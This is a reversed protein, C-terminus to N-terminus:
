PAFATASPAQILEDPRLGLATTLEELEAYRVLNAAKPPTEPRFGPDELRRVLTKLIPLDLAFVGHPSGLAEFHESLGALRAARAEDDSPLEIALRWLEVEVALARAQAFDPRDQLLGDLWEAAEQLGVSRASDKKSARAKEVELQAARLKLLSSDPDTALAKRLLDEVRSLSSRAESEQHNRSQARRLRDAFLQTEVLNSILTEQHDPSLSSAKTLAARSAEISPIPNEGLLLDAQARSLFLSGENVWAATFDPNIDRSRDLAAKSAEFLSLDPNGKALGLRFQAELVAGKLNLAQNLDPNIELSRDCIKLAKDLLSSTEKGQQELFSARNFLLNGLNTLIVGHDPSRDLAEEFSQVASAFAPDPDGGRALREEALLAMATGRNVHAVVLGPDERVATELHKAALELDDRPDEGKARSLFFARTLYASGLLTLTEPNGSTIQLAQQALTLGKELEELRDDLPLSPDQVAFVHLRALQLRSHNLGPDLEMAQQCHRRGDALDQPARQLRAPASRTVHADCLADAIQTDSPALLAAEDLAAIAKDAADIADQWRSDGVSKDAIQRWAEGQLRLGDPLWPAEDAAEKALELGHEYREDLLAIMSAVLAPSAVESTEEVRSLLEVAPDRYIRGLREIELARLKPDRIQFASTRENQYIEGLSKGLAFAVESSKLGSDWAKQLHETADRPQHMMLHARGLALHAAGEAIEGLMDARDSIRDMRKKTLEKERSVDHSPLAYAYRLFSEIREAERSFDRAIEIRSRANQHDRWWGFSLVAVFVAMLTGAIWSWRHRQVHKQWIYLKSGPLARVPKRELVRRLDDALEAASGYRHLPNKELAKAVVADLDRAFPFDAFTSPAPPDLETLRRILDASEEQRREFPLRGTLLQFLVVGLSYVDSSSTVPEGRLQEPAAYHPTMRGSSSSGTVADRRDLMQAIGFDLVKPRGDETVLINSPKLDLHAVRRRHAHDIAGCIEILLELRQEISPSSTQVFRDLPLGRVYDMVLYPLGDDGVGGDLLKAISPHELDALIQREFRFRELSDSSFRRPSVVKVAVQQEFHGDARHALLVTGMGGRGLIEVTRYPGFRRDVLSEQFSHDLAKEKAIELTEQDLFGDVELCDDLFHEIELRLEPDDCHQDLYTDRASPELDLIEDLLPELRQWLAEDM